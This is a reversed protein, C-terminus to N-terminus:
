TASPAAPSDGRTPHAARRVLMSIVAAGFWMGATVGVIDSWLSGHVITYGAFFGTWLGALRGQLPWPEADDGHALILAAGAVGMIAVCAWAELYFSGVHAYPRMLRTVAGLVFSALPLALLLRNALLANKIRRLRGPSRGAHEALARELSTPSIGAEAAVERLQEIANRSQEACELEIARSLIKKIDSERIELDTM